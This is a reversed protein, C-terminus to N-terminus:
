YYFPKIQLVTTVRQEKKEELAEEENVLSLFNEKAFM